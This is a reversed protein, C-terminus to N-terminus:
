VKANWTNFEDTSDWQFIKKIYPTDENHDFRAVMFLLFVIMNLLLIRRLHLRRKKTHMTTFDKMLAPSSM